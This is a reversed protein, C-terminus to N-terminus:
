YQRCPYDYKNELNFIVKQNARSLELEKLNDLVPLKLYFEGSYNEQSGTLNFGEALDFFITEANFSGIYNISNEKSILSYNVSGLGNEGLCGFKVEQNTIEINTDNIQGTILIYEQSNCNIISNIALGMLKDKKNKLIGDILKTNYAGFNNTSLTRMLGNDISRYYENTSCGSFCGDSFEFEDCTKVCNKSTKIFNAPVYEDALNALAHGIEHLIVSKPSNTNISVTNMYSSSRIDPNEHSLVIIIDNPCISSKEILDKSYCDVAIDKYYTCTVSYNDIYYFNINNKNSKFPETNIIEQEYLTANQKDSIFVFNIGSDSNKELNHCILSTSNPSLNKNKILILSTSLLIVIIIGLVLWVKKM